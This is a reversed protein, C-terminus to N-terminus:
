KPFEFSSLNNNEWFNGGMTKRKDNKEEQRLARFEPKVGAIFDRTKQSFFLKRVM